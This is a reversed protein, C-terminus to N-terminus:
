HEIMGKDVLCKLFQYCSEGSMGYPEFNEQGSFRQIVKASVDQTSLFGMSWESFNRENIEEYQLISPEHHRPDNLIRHYLYNVNIRSGEICQLFYKESYCLVGTLYRNANNSHSAELIEYIDDMTVGESVRSAYVLRILYM